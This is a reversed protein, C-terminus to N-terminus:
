LNSFFANNGQPLVSVIVGDNKPPLMAVFLMASLIPPSKESTVTKSPGNLKVLGTCVHFTLGRAM